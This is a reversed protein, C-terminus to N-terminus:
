SWAFHADCGRQELINKQLKEAFCLQTFYRIRKNPPREPNTTYFERAYNLLTPLHFIYPNGTKQYQIRELTQVNYKKCDEDEQFETYSTKNSTKSLTYIIDLLDFKNRYFAINVALKIFKQEKHTFKKFAHTVLDVHFPSLKQNHITVAHSFVEKFNETVWSQDIFNTDIDPDVGYTLWIGAIAPNKNKLVVMFPTEGQEPTKINTGYKQELNAGYATLTHFLMVWFVNNSPRFCNSIWHIPAFGFSADTHTTLDLNLGHHLLLPLLQEINPHNKRRAQYNKIRLVHTFLTGWETTIDDNKPYAYLIKKNLNIGKYLLETILDQRNKALLTHLLLHINEDDADFTENNVINSVAKELLTDYAITECKARDFQIPINAHAMCFLTELPILTTTEYCHTYPNIPLEKSDGHPVFGQQMCQISAVLVMCTSACFWATIKFKMVM